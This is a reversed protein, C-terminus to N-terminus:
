SVDEQGEIISNTWRLWVLFKASEGDYYGNCLVFIEEQKTFCTERRTNDSYESLYVWNETVVWRQSITLHLLHLSFIEVADNWDCYTNTKWKQNEVKWDDELWRDIRNILPPLKKRPEGVARTAIKM